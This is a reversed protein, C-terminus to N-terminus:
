RRVAIIGFIGGLVYFINSGLIGLVLFLIDWGKSSDKAKARRVMFITILGVILVIILYVLSGAGIFPLEEVAKVFDPNVMAIISFVIGVISIIVLIWTFFNAISYMVRSAREM